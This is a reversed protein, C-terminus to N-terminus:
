MSKQINFQSQKGWIFGIQGTMNDKKYITPNSKSFNQKFRKCRRAHPVNSWPKRRKYHRDQKWILCSRGEHFLAPFDEKRKLKRSCNHVFSMIEKKFIQNFEETFGELSLLHFQWYDGLFHYLCMSLHSYSM